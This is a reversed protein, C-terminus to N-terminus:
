FHVLTETYTVTKRGGQARVLIRFYQSISTTGIRQANAYSLSGRESSGATTNVFPRACNITSGSATPDGTGDCLRLIVYRATVGNPLAALPRSNLCNALGGCGDGWDIVTRTNGTGNGTVDLPNATTDRTTAYYPIATTGIDNDITNSAINDSLWRIAIRAADDAALQTDQKFGLNGLALTSTDVSRILAVAALSLAVMTILAFILSVGRQAHLRTPNPTSSNCLAM